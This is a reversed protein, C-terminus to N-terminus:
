CTFSKDVTRAEKKEEDLVIFIKFIKKLSAKAFIEYWKADVIKWEVILDVDEDKGDRVQFPATARNIALIKKKIEAKSPVPTNPDPKKIGRLFDLFGM